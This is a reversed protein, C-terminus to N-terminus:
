DIFTVTRNYHKRVKEEWDIFDLDINVDHCERLISNISKLLLPSHPSVCREKTTLVNAMYVKLNESVEM